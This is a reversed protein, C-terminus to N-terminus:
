VATVIISYRFTCSAAWFAAVQDIFYFGEDTAGGGGFIVRQFRFSEQGLSMAGHNYETATSFELSFLSM